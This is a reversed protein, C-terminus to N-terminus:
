CERWHNSRGLEDALGDRVVADDLLKAPPIPTTYLSSSFLRCCQNAAFISARFITSSALARSRHSRFARAAEVAGPYKNKLTVRTTSRGGPSTRVNGGTTVGEWSTLWVM